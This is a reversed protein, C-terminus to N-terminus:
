IVIWIQKVMGSFDTNLDSGGPWIFTFVSFGEVSRDTATQITGALEGCPELNFYEPLDRLKEM